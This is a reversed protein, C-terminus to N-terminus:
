RLFKLLLQKSPAESAWNTSSVVGSILTTLELGTDPEMSPM